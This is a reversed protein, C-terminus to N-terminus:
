LDNPATVLIENGAIKVEADHGLRAILNMAITLASRRKQEDNLGIIAYTWGTERDKHSYYSFLREIKLTTFYIIDGTDRKFMVKVM